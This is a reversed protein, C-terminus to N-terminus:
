VRLCLLAPPSAERLTLPPFEFVKHRAFSVPFLNETFPETGNQVGSRFQYNTQFNTNRTVWPGHLLLHQSIGRVSCLRYFPETHHTDRQSCPDGFSGMEATNPYKATINPSSFYSFLIFVEHRRYILGISYM